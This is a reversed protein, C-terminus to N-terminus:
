GIDPVPPYVVDPVPPLLFRSSYCELGMLLGFVVLSISYMARGAKLFQCDFVSALIKGIIIKPHHRKTEKIFHLGRGLNDNLKSDFVNNPQQLITTFQSFFISDSQPLWKM